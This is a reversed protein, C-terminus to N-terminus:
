HRLLVHEWPAVGVLERVSDQVMVEGVHIDVSCDRHVQHRHGWPTRLVHVILDFTWRMQQSTKMDYDLLVEEVM